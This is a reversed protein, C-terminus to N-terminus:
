QRQLWLSGGLKFIGRGSPSNSQVPFKNGFYDNFFIIKFASNYMLFARLAYAENWACRDDLIWQRPYEFAASIDHFHIIVGPRLLPLIEFLEFCVDSGTKLVHSLDIFLIDGAELGAFIRLDVDQVKCEYLSASTSDGDKFLSRM